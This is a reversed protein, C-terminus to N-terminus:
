QKDELVLRVGVRSSRNNAHSTERSASRAEAPSSNYSGGRVVHLPRGGPMDTNRPDQAATAGAGIATATAILAFAPDYYDAVIEHVNGHMDRFGWVNPEREGVPHPNGGSNVRVWGPLALEWERIENPTAGEPPNAGTYFPTGTGARVAWEWEAETPLRWALGEPVHANLAPLLHRAIDNFSIATAPLNEENPALPRTRWEWTMPRAEGPLEDRVETRDLTEASEVPVLARWQGRTLPTEALWFGRTIKVPYLPEDASRGAEDPPSGM